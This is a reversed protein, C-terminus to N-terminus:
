SAATDDFRRTHVHVGGRIRGGALKGVRECYHTWMHLQTEKAVRARDYLWASLRDGSKAWSEIEFVLASDEARARFEIQGAELHGRLTALRFSTATRDVTRVPGDWPGPMRIVFEDGVRLSGQGGRTKRFVAMEIPAPRNPEEAITTILWEPSTSSGEIRVSYRRRFVPGVGDRLRQLRDDVVAEPLAPEADEPSGPEDVRHLPTTRWLYRWSALAVGVPWLLVTGARRAPGDERGM